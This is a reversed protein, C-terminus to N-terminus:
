DINNVQRVLVHLAKCPDDSKWVPSGCSVITAGNALCILPDEFQKQFNASKDEFSSPRTGPIFKIGRLGKVADLMTGPMVYGDCGRELSVKAFHRVSESLSRRFHRRCYADDYHTLITVGLVIVGLKEGEEVAKELMSDALAHFNIMSAGEGAAITVLEKLTRNGNWGKFDTFVPKGTIVCIDSIVRKSDVIADLNVKIGYNGPVGKIQNAKYVVKEASSDDIALCFKPFARKYM